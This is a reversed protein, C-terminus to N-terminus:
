RMLIMLMLVSIVISTFTRHVSGASNYLWYADYKSPQVKPLPGCPRLPAQFSTPRQNEDTPLSGDSPRQGLSLTPRGSGHDGRLRLLEYEVHPVTIGLAM